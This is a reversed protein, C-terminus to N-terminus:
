QVIFAKLGIWYKTGNEQYSFLHFSIEPLRDSLYISISGHFQKLRPIEKLEELAEELDLRTSYYRFM